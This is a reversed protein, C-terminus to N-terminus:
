GFGPGHIHLCRYGRKTLLHKCATVCQGVSGGRHMCRWGCLIFQENIDLCRSYTLRKKKKPPAPEPEMALTEVVEKATNDIPALVPAPAPAAEIVAVAPEECGVLLLAIIHTPKM